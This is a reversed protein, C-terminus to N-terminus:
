ARDAAVEPLPLTEAEQPLPVTEAEERGFSLAYRASAWAGVSKSWGHSRQEVLWTFGLAVIVAVPIGLLLPVYWPEGALLYTSFVLIPVHVLYLSFSIRGAFRFPESSLGAALPAWGIASVVLGAAALPVAGKLAYALETQTGTDPGLLWALILLLGSGVALTAWLLHRSRRANIRAAALRIADLRVALVAGVFFSPLYSLAGAGTHAGLWTLACAAALGAMWWRRVAIAAIAFAPLALSFLLEWRLSWLTNDIHWDGGFVDAARFVDEWSFGPTSSGSLWTGPAQTTIQPIAAAWVGALGAAALVPIMLRVVRRPIYAVWDFGRHRVVPLTLVLGSLVFFLIVSEAGATLWKLPTYSIWWMPSWAPASGGGPTGPFAPNTLMSHHLMVVVAALGRLGDLSELRGSTPTTNQAM